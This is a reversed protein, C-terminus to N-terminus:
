DRIAIRGVAARCAERVPWRRFVAGEVAEDEFEPDTAAVLTLKRVHRSTGVEGLVRCAHHRAWPDRSALRKEALPAADPCGAGALYGLWIGAVDDPASKAAAGIPGCLDEHPVSLLWDVVHATAHAPATRAIARGSKLRAIVAARVDLGEADLHALLRVGLADRSLDGVHVFRDFVADWDGCRALRLGADLFLADRDEPPLTQRAREYAEEVKACDGADADFRALAAARVPECAEEGGARIWVEGLCVDVLLDLDGLREATRVLARCSEDWTAVDAPTSERRNQCMALLLTADM